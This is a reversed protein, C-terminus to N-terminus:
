KLAKLFHKISEHTKHSVSLMPLRLENECIGLETLVCKAGAPNGEVFLLDIGEMLKYHLKQAHTFAHKLSSHILECFEKPFCNAAVSIVGDFGCAIQPMALMDDGSLLAFHKPKNKVLEMCQVMNGSAEKMGIVKECENAIQLTTSALMNSGTRAPVNYLIIPLPCHKNIETYHAIIGEQTPKNYSPSVSLIADIKDMPYLAFQKIIEATNNGGLGCVLPVRKNNKEIINILIDLKEAENLTPTEATTGLAVLYDAGGEIVFDVLKELAIYDVTKDKKFPTILAVGTGKFKNASM